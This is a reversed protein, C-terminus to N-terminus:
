EAVRAIDASDQAWHHVKEADLYVSSSFYPAKPSFITALPAIKGRVKGKTGKV